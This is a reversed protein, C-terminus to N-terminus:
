GAGGRMLQGLKDTGLLALAIECQEDTANALAKEIREACARAQRAMDEFEARASKNDSM